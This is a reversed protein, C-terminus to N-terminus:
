KNIEGLRSLSDFLNYLGSNIEEMFNDSETDEEEDFYGLQILLLLEDENM